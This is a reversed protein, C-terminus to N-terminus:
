EYLVTHAPAKFEMEWDPRGAKLVLYPEGTYRNTELPEVRDIV